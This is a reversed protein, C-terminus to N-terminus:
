PTPQSFQMLLGPLGCQKDGMILLFRKLQRIPYHHHPRALDLLHTCGIGDIAGWSRGIHEFENPPGIYQMPLHDVPTKARRSHRQIGAPNNITRRSQIRPWM